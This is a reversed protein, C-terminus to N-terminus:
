MERMGCEDNCWVSEERVRMGKVGGDSNFCSGLYKFSKVVKMRDGNLRINLMEPDDM